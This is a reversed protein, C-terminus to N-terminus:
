AYTGKASAAVFLWLCFAFMNAFVFVLGTSM